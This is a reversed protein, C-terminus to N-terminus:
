GEVQTNPPSPISVTARPGFACCKLKRYCGYRKQWKVSKSFLRREPNARLEEDYVVYRVGDVMVSKPDPPSVVLGGTEYFHVTAVENDNKDRYSWTRSGPKKRRPVMTLAGYAVNAVLLSENFICRLDWADVEVLTVNPPTAM